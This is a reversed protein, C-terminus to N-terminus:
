DSVVITQLPDFQGTRLKNPSPREQRRGETGPGSMSSQLADSLQRRKALRIM